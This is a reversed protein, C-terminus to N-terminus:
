NAPREKEREDIRRGKRREKMLGGPKGERENTRRGKRRETIM